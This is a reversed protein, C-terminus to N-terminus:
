KLELLLRAFIMLVAGLFFLRVDQHPVIQLIKAAHRIILTTIIIFGITSIILSLCIVLLEM